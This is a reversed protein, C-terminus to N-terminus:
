RRPAEPLQDVHGGMCIYRKLGHARLFDPVALRSRGRYKAYERHNLAALRRDQYEPISVGPCWAIKWGAKALDHYFDFHDGGMKSRETFRIKGPAFIESRVLNYNVTLDCLAYHVGDPTQRYECTDPNLRIERVWDDGREIFCEYARNCVRGAVSGVEPDHTLVSMLKQIGQVVGEGRFNFDDSAVLTFPRDLYPLAANAKAGFGTDFPLWRCVHGRRSLRNYLSIKRPCEYGDDVIVMKGGPLQAEIDAVTQVLYGDRLFTKILICISAFPGTLPMAPSNSEGEIFLAHEKHMDDPHFECAAVIRNAQRPGEQSCTTNRSSRAVVFQPQRECIIRHKALVNGVWRDQAKHTHLPATALIEMARRSHWIAFGSAYPAPYGGSPGRLRGSYDSRAFESEFLREPVVYTDDDCSFMFDYAGAWKCVERFKEPLGLYSDDCDFVVEDPRATYNGNPPRGLFFRVDVTWGPPVAPAIRPIWTARQAEARALYRHCTKIAILIKMELDTEVM